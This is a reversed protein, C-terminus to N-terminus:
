SEFSELYSNIGDLSDFVLGGSLEARTELPLLADDFSVDQVRTEDLTQADTTVICLKGADDTKLVFHKPCYGAYARILRISGSAFEAISATPFADALQKQTYGAYPAADLTTEVIHPCKSFHADVRLVAAPLVQTEGPVSAESADPAAELVPIRICVGILIGAVVALITSVLLRRNEQLMLWNRKM